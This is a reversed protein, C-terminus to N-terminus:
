VKRYNVYINFAISQYASLYLYLAININFKYLILNHFLNWSFFDCLDQCLDTYDKSPELKM